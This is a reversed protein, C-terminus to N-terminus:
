KAEEFQENADLMSQVLKLGRRWVRSRNAGTQVPRMYGDLKGHAWVELEVEFRQSWALTRQFMDLCIRVPSGDYGKVIWTQSKVCRRESVRM